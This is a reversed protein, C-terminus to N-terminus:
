AAEEDDGKLPRVPLAALWADVETSLWMSKGGAIRSRPFKGARMWAWITPFTVNTIALIDSKSLLRPPGQSRDSGRIREPNLTTEVEPTPALSKRQLWLSQVKKTESAAKLAAAKRAPEVQASPTKATTKSTKTPM